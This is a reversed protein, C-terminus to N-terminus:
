QFGATKAYFLSGFDDPLGVPPSYSIGGEVPADPNFPSVLFRPSGAGVLAGPKEAFVGYKPKTSETYGTKLQSMLSDDMLAEATTGLFDASKVLDAVSWAIRGKMKNTMTPRQIGLFAALASQSKNQATLLMKVNWSIVSEAYQVETDVNKKATAPASTTM